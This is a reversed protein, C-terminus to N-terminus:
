LRSQNTRYFAFEGGDASFSIGSDINSIVQRSAGGLIPVQYLVADPENERWLTYYISKSDPSVALGGFKGPTPPVIEIDRSENFQRIWLSQKEGEERAHIIYKGDPSIISYFAKGTATVRSLNIQQFSELSSRKPFRNFYYTFGLIALLFIGGACVALYKRSGKQLAALPPLPEAATEKEVFIKELTETEEVWRVPAIFRYGRRPVTEIFRPSNADDGLAKRLMKINFTLNSEEVFRDHWIRQMLEEKAVLRDAQEVLVILTDFMKRTLPVPAGRRVLAKNVLDLRFEDFEYFQKTGTM